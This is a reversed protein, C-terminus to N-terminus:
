KMTLFKELSEFENGNNKLEQEILNLVKNTLEENYITEAIINYGNYLLDITGEDQRLIIRIDEM